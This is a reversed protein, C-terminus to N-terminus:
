NPQSGKPKTCPNTLHVCQSCYFGWNSFPSPIHIVDHGSAVPQPNPSKFFLLSKLNSALSLYDIKLARRPWVLLNAGSHRVHHPWISFDAYYSFTDRRMDSFRLSLFTIFIKTGSSFLSDYTNQTKWIGNFMVFTKRKPIFIYM